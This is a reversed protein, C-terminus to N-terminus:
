LFIGICINRVRVAGTAPVLQTPATLTRLIQTLAAFYYFYAACLDSSVRLVLYYLPYTRYLQVMAACLDSGRIYYM